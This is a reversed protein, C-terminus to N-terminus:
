HGAGFVPSRDPSRPLLGPVSGGMPDGEGVSVIIGRGKPLAPLSRSAALAFAFGSGGSSPASCAAKLTKYSDASSSTADAKWLRKEPSVKAPVAVAQSSRMAEMYAKFSPQGSDELETKGGRPRTGHRCPLRDATARSRSSRPPMEDDIGYGADDLEFNDHQSKLLQPEVGQMMAYECSRKFMYDSHYWMGQLTAKTTENLRDFDPVGFRSPDEGTCMAAVAASYAKNALLMRERVMGIRVIRQCSDQYLREFVGKLRAGGKADALEKLGVKEMLSAIKDVDDPDTPIGQLSEIRRRLEDITLLLRAIENELEKVRKELDKHEPKYCKGDRPSELKKKAEVTVIREVIKEIVIPEPVKLKEALRQKTGELAALVEGVWVDLGKIAKDCVKNQTESMKGPVTGLIKEVTKQGKASPDLSLEASAAILLRHLMEQSKKAASSDGDATVEVIKEQIVVKERIVEKIVEVTKVNKREEDLERRLRELEAKLRAIESDLATTDAMQVVAPKEPKKKQAEMLKKRLDEIEQDKQKIKAELLRQEKLMEQRVQQRAEELLRELEQQSIGTPGVVPPPLTARVEPPQERERKPAAQPVVAPVFAPEPDGPKLARRRRMEELQSLLEAITQKMGDREEAILALNALLERVQRRLEAESDGGGDPRLGFPLKGNEFKSPDLALIRRVKANVADILMERIDDDFSNLPEFVENDMQVLQDETAGFEDFGPPQYTGSTIAGQMTGYTPARSMDEEYNYNMFAGGPARPSLSPGRGGGGAGHPVLHPAGFFRPAGASGPEGAAPAGGTGDYGGGDGGAAAGGSSGGKMWGAVIGAARANPPRDRGGTPEIAGVVEPTTYDQPSFNQAVQAWYQAAQQAHMAVDQAHKMADKMKKAMAQLEKYKIEVRRVHQRLMDSELIANKQISKNKEAMRKNQAVIEDDAGGAWRLAFGYGVQWLNDSITTPSLREGQEQVLRMLVTKFTEVTERSRQDGRLWYPIVPLDGLGSEVTKKLESEKKKREEALEEQTKGAELSEVASFEANQRLMQEKTKKEKLQYTLELNDQEMSQLQEEYSRLLVQADFLRRIAEKQTVGHDVLKIAQPKKGQAAKCWPCPKNAPQTPTSLVILLRRGIELGGKEQQKLGKGAARESGRPKAAEDRERGRPSSARGPAGLNALANIKTHDEVKGALIDIGRCLKPDDFAAIDM